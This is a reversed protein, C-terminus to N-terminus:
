MPGYKKEEFGDDVQANQADGLVREEVEPVNFTFEHLEQM